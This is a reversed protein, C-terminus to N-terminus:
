QGCATISELMITQHQRRERGTKLLCGVQFWMAPITRMMAPMKTLTLMIVIIIILKIIMMM